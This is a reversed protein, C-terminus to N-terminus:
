DAVGQAAGGGEVDEAGATVEDAGLALVGVGQCGGVGGLGIEFAGGGREVLEAGSVLMGTLDARLAARFATRLAARFATRLVARLDTRLVATKRIRAAHSRPDAVGTAVGWVPVEANRRVSSCRARM